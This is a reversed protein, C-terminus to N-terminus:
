RLSKVVVNFQEGRDYENKFMGFSALAPSFLIIDSRKAIAVTKKVAERLNKVNSIPTQNSILFKSNSILKETGTGPLLVVGKCYKPIEAVLKSMDLGKDSGGLILIIQKSSLARLAAMTADPTTACTDNYIRVDRIERIFELRGPVGGFNEIAEKSIEDPIKLARAVALACAANYRNHEGIIKLQWNKPWDAARASIKKSKLNKFTSGKKDGLNLRTMKEVQEGLILVDGRKQFKFINAKDQFYRAMDGKYYNMHDPLFTTFVAIHPSIRSDGFGQLQWSDLEAVVFDGAKVKDM